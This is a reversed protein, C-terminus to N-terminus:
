FLRTFWARLAWGADHKRQYRAGSRTLEGVRDLVERAEDKRGIRKLLAGRRYASEPSEGHLREVEEVTRLAEEDRGLAAQARALLVRAEGYAHEDNRELARELATAAEEHRGLEFLAQGRRYHWEAVEPEGEVARDLHPLARRNRGQSVLLSGLKGLNHPTEVAGLQRVLAARKRRDLADDALKSLVVALLIAVVWFGLLPVNLIWGLVPVGGLLTRLVSLLVITAFFFAALRLM